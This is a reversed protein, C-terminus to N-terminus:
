RKLPIFGQEPGLQDFQAKLMDREVTKRAIKKETEAALEGLLDRGRRRALKVELSLQVSPRQPLQSLEREIERVRRQCRDLEAQLAEVSVNFTSRQVNLTESLALLEPLSRAAYANNIAAMQETRRARELEDAALDPHFSRALHRYLRRIEAEDTPPPPQPPPTPAAPPPAQWARRYQFDVSAYDQGHQKQRLLHLREMYREIEAELAELKDYLYGVRAEFQFEFANVEALRDALQAEKEILETKAQEVAARLRTLKESDTEPQWHAM